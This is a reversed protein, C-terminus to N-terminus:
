PYAVGPPLGAFVAGVGEFTGENLAAHQAVVMADRLIHQLRHTKQVAAMGAVRFATQVVEASADAAHTASLRLMNRQELTSPDGALLVDWAAEPAKFFFVRAAGHRRPM